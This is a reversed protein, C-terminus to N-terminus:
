QSGRREVLRCGPNALLKWVLVRCFDGGEARRAICVALNCVVVLVVAFLPRM